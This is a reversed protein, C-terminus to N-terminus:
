LLNSSTKLATKGNGKLATIQNQIDKMTDAINFPHFNEKSYERKIQTNSKLAINM